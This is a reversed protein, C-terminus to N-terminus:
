LSISCNLDTIQNKYNLMAQANEIKLKGSAHLMPLSFKNPFTFLADTYLSGGFISFEGITINKRIKANDIIFHVQSIGEGKSVKGTLSLNQKDSAFSGFLDFEISFKNKYLKGSLQEGLNIFEGNKKILRFIGNKVILDEVPFYTPVSMTTSEIVSDLNAPTSEVFAIDIAPQVLIIKNIAKTVDGKSTVLKRFSLGVKIDRISIFTSNDPFELKVNKLHASFFVLRFSGVYIKGDFYSAISQILINELNRNKQLYRFGQYLASTILLILTALVLVWKRPRM